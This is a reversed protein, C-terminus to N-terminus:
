PPTPAAPSVFLRLTRRGAPGLLVVEGDGISVVRYAGGQDGVRYPRAAVSRPDLRLLAVPGDAEAVIGFLAPVGAGHSAREDPADGASTEAPAPAAAVVPLDGAPADRPVQYRAVPPRRTDSFINAGVITSVLADDGPSPAVAPAARQGGEAAQVWPAQLSLSLQLPQGILAPNPRVRLERLVAVYPGRRLGALFASVAQVDGVATLSAPLAGNSTSDPDGSVDLSSVALPAGAAAERLSAQLASAALAATRASIVRRPTAAASRELGALTRRLAPEDAIAGRLRSLEDRRAAILAERASWRSVFPVIAFAVVISVISVALAIRITRLERPQLRMM